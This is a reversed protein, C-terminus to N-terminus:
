RTYLIGTRFTAGGHRREVGDDSRNSAILNHKYILLPRINTVETGVSEACVAELRAAAIIRNFIGTGGNGVIM